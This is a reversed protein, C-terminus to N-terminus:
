SSGRRREPIRSSRLPFECPGQDTKPLPAARSKRAVGRWGLSAAGVALFLTRRTIARSGWTEWYNPRPM